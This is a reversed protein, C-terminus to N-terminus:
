APVLDIEGCETASSGLPPWYRAVSRRRDLAGREEGLSLASGTHRARPMLLRVPTSCTPSQNARRRRREPWTCSSNALLGPSLLGM